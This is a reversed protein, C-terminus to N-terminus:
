YPTQLAPDKNMTRSFHLKHSINNEAYSCNTLCLKFCVYFEIVADKMEAAKGGFCVRKESSSKFTFVDLLPNEEM